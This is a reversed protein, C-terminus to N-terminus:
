AEAPIFTSEIFTVITLAIQQQEEAPVQGTALANLAQQLELTVALLAAFQHSKELTTMNQESHTFSHFPFKKTEYLLKVSGFAVQWV